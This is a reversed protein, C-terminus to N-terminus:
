KSTKNIRRIKAEELRSEDKKAKLYEKTSPTVDKFRGAFGEFYATNMPRIMVGNETEEFIVKVGSKIGYKNRIRKPILLQGKVTLVSTEM